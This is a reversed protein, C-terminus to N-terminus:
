SSPPIASTGRGQWYVFGLVACAVGFATYTPIGTTGSLPNDVATKLGTLAFFFCWLAMLYLGASTTRMLVRFTGLLTAAGVVLLVWGWTAPAGPVLLATVYGPSSWRARGGILVLAGQVISYTAFLRALAQIAWQCLDPDLRKTTAM